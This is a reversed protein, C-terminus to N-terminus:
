DEENIEELGKLFEEVNLGKFGDGDKMAQIEDKNVDKLYKTYTTDYDGDIDIIGIGNEVDSQRLGVSSGVEDMYEVEGLDEKSVGLKKLM